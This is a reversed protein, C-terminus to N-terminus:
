QRAKDLDIEFFFLEKGSRAWRIGSLVLKSGSRHKTQFYLFGHAPDGAPLMRAAFALGEIEWVDLPNKPARRPIPLPNPGINPKSPARAYRVDKAPTPEIPRNDPGLYEVHMDVLTAAEKSDNQMIVLIPLVGHEYPNLKGFAAKAQEATEIAVAAITLGDQTVKNPYSSAAGPRFVPGKKDAAFAAVISLVLIAWKGRRSM